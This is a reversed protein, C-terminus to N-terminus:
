ESVATLPLLAAAVRRGEMLLVNYTRAAAGTDMADIAVNHASMSGTLDASLLVMSPGCGILLLEIAPDAGLVPGLNEVAIDAWGRVSWPYVTEPLIIVPGEFWVNSIRFGGDGYGNVVQVGARVTQQRLEM